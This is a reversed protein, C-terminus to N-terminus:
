GSKIGSVAPEGHTFIASAMPRAELRESLLQPREVSNKAKFEAFPTFETEPM